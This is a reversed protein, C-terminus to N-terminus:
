GMKSLSFNMKAVSKRGRGGETFFQIGEGSFEVERKGRGQLFSVSIDKRIIPLSPTYFVTRRKEKKGEGAFLISADKLQCIFLEDGSIVRPQPPPPQPPKKQNQWATIQALGHVAEGETKM